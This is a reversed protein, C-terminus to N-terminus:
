LQNRHGRGQVVGLIRPIRGGLKLTDQWSNKLHYEPTPLSFFILVVVKSSGSHALHQVVKHINM